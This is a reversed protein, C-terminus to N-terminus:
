AQPPEPIGQESEAGAGEGGTEPMGGGLEEGGSEPMGGGLDNGGFDGSTNMDAGPLGGGMDGGFGMDGAPNQQNQQAAAAKKKDDDLMKQNLAWDDDSINLYKQLLFRMSFVPTQDSNQLGALTTIIGTGQELIAKEKALAFVNEEVYTLGIANKIVTSGSFAPHRLCFQNWMPKILIEKFMDRIRGIFLSFKYEERTMTSNDPIASSENGDFIMNFRDKPLRSEIM